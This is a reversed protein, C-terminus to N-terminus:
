EWKVELKTLGTDRALRVVADRLPRHPVFEALSWADPCNFTMGYGDATITLEQNWTRDDRTTFDYAYTGDNQKTIEFSSLPVAENLDALSKLFDSFAQHRISIEAGVNEMEITIKM